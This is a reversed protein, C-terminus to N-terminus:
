TGIPMMSFDTSNWASGLGSMRSPMPPAYFDAAILQGQVLATDTEADYATTMYQGNVVRTVMKLQTIVEGREGLVERADQQHAKRVADNEAYEPTDGYGMVAPRQPKRGRVAHAWPLGVPDLADEPDTPEFRWPYQENM